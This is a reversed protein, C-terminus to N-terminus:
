PKFYNEAIYESLAVSSAYRNYKRRLKWLFYKAVLRQASKNGVYAPWIAAAIEYKLLEQSKQLNSM